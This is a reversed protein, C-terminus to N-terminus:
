GKDLPLKLSASLFCRHLIVYRDEVRSSSEPTNLFALRRHGQKSPLRLHGRTVTRQTQQVVRIRACSQWQSRRAEGAGPQEQGKRARGPEGQSGRVGEPEEKSRRAGGLGGEKKREKKREEKRGEKRAEQRGEKRGEKSEKM